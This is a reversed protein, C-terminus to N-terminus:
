KLRKLGWGERWLCPLPLQGKVEAGEAGTVRACRGHGQGRGEEGEWRDAGQVHPSTVQSNYLWRRVRHKACLHREILM